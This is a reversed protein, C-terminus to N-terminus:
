RWGFFSPSQPFYAFSRDPAAPRRAVQTRQKKQKAAAVKAVQSSRAKTASPRSTGAVRLRKTEVIPPAPTPRFVEPLKPPPIAQASNTPPELYMSWAFLLLSLLSGVYLVYKFIPMLSVRDSSYAIPIHTLAPSRCARGIQVSQPARGFAVVMSLVCAPRALPESPPTAGACEMLANCVQGAHKVCQRSWTM